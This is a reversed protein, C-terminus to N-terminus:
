PSNRELFTPDASDRLRRSRGSSAEVAAVRVTPERTPMASFTLSVGLEYLRSRAQARARALRATPSSRM